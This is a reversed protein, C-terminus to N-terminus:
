LLAAAAVIGNITPQEFFVHLPLDIGLRQRLRASIKTITLSHGGLDFLDDDPGIEGHGLVERWIEYVQLSLGEYAAPEAPDEAALPRGALGALAARDLKGNTTLPLAEVLVFASPVLYPPLAEAVHKRLQSGVADAGVVLAVLDDDRVTVAAATVAPHAVLRAEIEGLEIRYGRVKVQDDARGLFEIRGDNRHRVRDGTRYLRGWPTEVFRAATLEPRGLYGRAVGAGGLCLEGVIGQPVPMGEADLVLATTNALPRGITVETLPEVLEDATSWVTTETPGYLNLLRASRRLIERALPLPLAEAGAVAVIGPEDYGADLLRQWTSPTLHAHTIGAARVLKLLAEGDMAQARTALVVTGGTALPLWLEPVSMDFAHSAVALWRDGPGTGITERMAALLNVVSGHEVQVGKPRGTSGSTYIVYALDDPETALAPAPGDGSVSGVVVTPVGVREGVVTVSGDIVLASPSADDLLFALRAAPYDPDLPLYAAGARLVGLLGVLLSADRPACVAVLDGAGIGHRHLGAAVADAGAALEAYTLSRDGDVVAVAEPNASVQAAVLEALTAPGTGPRETDNWTSLLRKREVRGVFTLEGIPAEPSAALADLLARLHEGIREVDSVDLVDPSFQARLLLDGDGEDVAHLHLTNRAAHHFASWDPRATLGTFEPDGGRRRRYSLSVPALAARPTLGTVAHSLPVPRVQYTERLRDRVIDLAEAGTRDGTLAATVPLENVFLGILDRADRPRTGLEIAVTPPETRPSEAPAAAQAYRHLLTLVGTLLLEFTTVGLTAAAPGLGPLRLDVIGGPTVGASPRVGPLSPEAPARWGSWHERAAPLLEAIAATQATIAAAFGDEVSAEAGGYAVAIQGLLVEKSEGDFVLHHAVLLLLHRDPALAALTCRILPGEALDFPRVSEAHLFAEVDDVQALEVAPRHPAPVLHLTGDLERCASGLVEHRAIVAECADVLRDRDLPGDLLVPLPMHYSTGALGLRETLWMGHQAISARM